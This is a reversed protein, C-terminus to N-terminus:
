GRRCYPDKTSGEPEVDHRDELTGVASWDGDTVKDSTINLASIPVCTATDGAISALREPSGAREEFFVARLGGDVEYIQGCRVCGDLLPVAFIHGGKSKRRSRSSMAM